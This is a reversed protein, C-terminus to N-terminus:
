LKMCLAMGDGVPVISLVIREDHLLEQNLQRLAATRKDQEKSDAVKGYWLVNDLIIVGGPRVLQLCLEYYEAYARKDADIFVFDFSGPEECSQLLQQLAEIAPQEKIDVKHAVAANEFAQRALILPRADRDCAILKGDAPLALAISLASYGTFVGLELAKRSRTVKVLWALFQAQEPSVQMRAGVPFHDATQQRLWRLVEHEATHSLLYGYLQDTMVTGGHHKNVPVDDQDKSYHRIVRKYAAKNKAFGGRKCALVRTASGNCGYFATSVGILTCSRLRQLM